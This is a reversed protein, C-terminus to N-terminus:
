PVKPHGLPIGLPLHLIDIAAIAGVGARHYGADWLAAM